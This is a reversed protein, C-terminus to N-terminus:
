DDLEDESEEEEDVDQLPAGYAEEDESVHGNLKKVITEHMTVPLFYSGREQELIIKICIVSDPLVFAPKDQLLELKIRGRNDAKGNSSGSYQFYLGELVLSGKKFEYGWSDTRTEPLGPLEHFTKTVNM